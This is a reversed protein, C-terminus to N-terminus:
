SASAAETRAEADTDAEVREAVGQEKAATPNDAEGMEVDTAPAAETQRAVEAVEQPAAASPASEEAMEVDDVKSTQSAASANSSKRAPTDQLAPSASAKMRLLDEQIAGNAASTPGAEGTAASAPTNMGSDDFDPVANPNQYDMINRRRPGNLNKNVIGNRENEGEDESDSLEGPKEVYNDWRRTTYRVDKNEDEDEDDLVADAEDDMGETDRPVDTMQVSPGFKTRSLNEIVQNKIKNLYEISNANDMNSPRVDLEFDPAFYQVHTLLM